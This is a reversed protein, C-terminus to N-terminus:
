HFIFRFILDDTVILNQGMRNMGCFLVLLEIMKTIGHLLFM